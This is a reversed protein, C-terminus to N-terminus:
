NREEDWQEQYKTWRQVKPTDSLWNRKLAVNADNISKVILKASIYEEDVHRDAILWQELQRGFIGAIPGQVCIQKGLQELDKYALFGTYYGDFTTVSTDTKQNKVFSEIGRHGFVNHILADQYTRLEKGKDIDLLIWTTTMFQYFLKQVLDDGYMRRIFTWADEQWIEIPNLAEFDFPSKKEGGRTKPLWISNYEM